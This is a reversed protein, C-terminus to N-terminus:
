PSPTTSPAPAVSISPAPAPQQVLSAMASQVFAANTGKPDLKLYTSWAKLATQNDGVARAFGGLTYYFEANRPELAVLLQYAKVASAMDNVSGFLQSLEQVKPVSAKKKEKAYLALASRYATIAVQTDKGATADNTSARVAYAKGLAVWAAPDSPNADVVAQTAKIQNDIADSPSTGGTGCANLVGSYGVVLFSVMLLAMFGFVWRQWFKVRERDLLM